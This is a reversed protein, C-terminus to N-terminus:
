ARVAKGDAGAPLRGVPAAVAVIWGILAVVMLGLLTAAELLYAAFGTCIIDLCILWVFVAHAAGSTWATAYVAIGAALMLFTSAVVLLAGGTYDIGNHPVFYALLTAIFALAAAAIVVWGGADRYSMPYRM